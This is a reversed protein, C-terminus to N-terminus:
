AGWERGQIGENPMTWGDPHVVFSLSNTAVSPM